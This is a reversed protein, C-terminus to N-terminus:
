QRKRECVSRKNGIRRKHSSFSTHSRFLRESEACPIRVGTAVCPPIAMCNSCTQDCTHTVDRRCGKGSAKCVYRRAMAGTLNGIVHYNRTVEDYLLNLRETSEVCGEFMIKDCNLGTYVVIKYQRFHDQFRELEPIGGGNDLTIGTAALLQDVRLYTQM